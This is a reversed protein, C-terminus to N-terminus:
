PAVVTLRRKTALKPIADDGTMLIGVAAVAVAAVATIARPVTPAVHVAPLM